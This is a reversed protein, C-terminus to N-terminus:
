SKGGKAGSLLRAAEDSVHLTRTPFAFQLGAAAFREHIALNVANLTPGFDDPDVVYIVRLTLASETLSHFVVSGEMHISTQERLIDNLIATAQRVQDTTSSYVLGLTFEHVRGHSQTFNEIAAGAIRKNPIVVCVGAPTVLKTSRMGVETVRGFFTEVRIHDGAVFPRDTMIQVSGLINGLTEQAALAVALGGIGLGTIVSMVDFGARKLATMGLMTAVVVKTTMRLFYIVQKSIPPVQRQSWPLVWEDFLADISRLAIVAVTLAIAVMAANQALRQVGDPLTLFGACVHVGAFVFLLSMPRSAVEVLRDDLKTETKATLRGVVRTLVMRAIRGLVWAGVLTALAYLWVELSNGAYVRSLWLQVEHPM